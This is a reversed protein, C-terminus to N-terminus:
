VSITNTPDIKLGVEWAIVEKMTADTGSLFVLIDGQALALGGASTSLLVNVGLGVTGTGVTNLTVTTTGSTNIKLAQFTSLTATGVVSYTMEISYAQMATFACFKAYQTTAAGGAEGGGVMWRTQYGPWDYAQSKTAM